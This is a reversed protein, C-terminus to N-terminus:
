REYREEFNVGRLFGARTFNACQEFTAKTFESPQDLMVLIASSKGTNKVDVDLAAAFATKDKNPDASHLICLHNTPDSAASLGCTEFYKCTAM